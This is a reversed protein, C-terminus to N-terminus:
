HVFGILWHCPLLKTGYMWRWRECLFTGFPSFIWCVATWQTLIGQQHWLDSQKQLQCSPLLLEFTWETCGTCFLMESHVVCQFRFCCCVEADWRLWGASSVPFTARGLKRMYSKPPLTLIKCSCFWHWPRGSYHQQDDKQGCHLRRRVSWTVFSLYDWVPM